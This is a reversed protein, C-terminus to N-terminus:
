RGPLAALAGGVIQAAPADPKPNTHLVRGTAGDLIFVRPCEPANYLKAGVGPTGDDTLLLLDSGPALGAQRAMERVGAPSVEHYVIVTRVGALAGGARLAGWEAAVRSCAECGCFFFLAVPRKDGALLPATHTKGDVDPLTFAAAVAGGPSAAATPLKAGVMARVPVILRRGEGLTVSVTAAQPGAPADAALTLRLVRSLSKAAATYSAELRASLWPANSVAGKLGAVAAADSGVLLVPREAGPSAGEWAVLAPEARVPGVHNLTVPCSVSPRPAEGGEWSTDVAPLSVLAEVFGLPADPAWSLAFRRRLVGAAADEAPPGLPKVLFVPANPGAPAPSPFRERGSLLGRDIEVTFEGAADLRPPDFRVAPVVRGTIPVALAVGEGSAGPLYVRVVKDLPGAPARRPDLTLTVTATGGPEIKAVGRGDPAPNGSVDASLCGCPVEVRAVIVPARGANRLTVTREPAADGPKRGALRVVGFAASTPEAVLQARGAGAWFLLLAAALLGRRLSDCNRM